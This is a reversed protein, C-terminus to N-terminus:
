DTPAIIEGDLMLYVTEEGWQSLCRLEAPRMLVATRMRDRKAVCEKISNVGEWTSIPWWATLSTLYLTTVFGPM